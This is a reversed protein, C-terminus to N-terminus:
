FCEAITSSDSVQTCGPGSIRIVAIAAKGPATSLAYITDETLGGVTRRQTDSSRRCTTSFYTMLKLAKQSRRDIWHRQSILMRSTKVEHGRAKEFKSRISEEVEGGFSEQKYSAVKEIDGDGRRGRGANHPADQAATTCHFRWDEAGADDVNSRKGKATDAHELDKSHLQGRGQSDTQERDELAAEDRCELCPRRAGFREIRRGLAARPGPPPVHQPLSSPPLTPTSPTSPHHHTAAAPLLRARRFQVNLAHSQLPPPSLKTALPFAHLRHPLIARM